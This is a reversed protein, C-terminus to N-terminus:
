CKACIKNGVKERDKFNMTSRRSVRQGEDQRRQMQEFRDGFDDSMDEDGEDIRGLRRQSSDIIDCNVGFEKTYVIPKPKPRIELEAVFKSIKLAQKKKKKADLLAQAQEATM